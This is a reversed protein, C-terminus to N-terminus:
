AASAVGTVPLDGLSTHLFQRLFEASDHQEGDQLCALPAPLTQPLMEALPLTPRGTGHLLFACCAAALPSSCLSQRIAHCNRLLCPLVSTAYCLNGANEYGRAGAFCDHETCGAD